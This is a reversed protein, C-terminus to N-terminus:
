RLYQLLNLDKLQGFIAASAQYQTQAASLRAAVEAL